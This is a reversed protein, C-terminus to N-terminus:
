VGQLMGPGSIASWPFHSRKLRQTPRNELWILLTSTSCTRYAALYKTPNRLSFETSMLPRFAIPLLTLRYPLIVNSISQPRQLHFHCHFRVGCDISYSRPTRSVAEEGPPPITNIRIPKSPRPRLYNPHSQPPVPSPWHLVAAPRSALLACLQSFIHSQLHLHHCLCSLHSTWLTTLPEPSFFPRSDLALCPWTLCPLYIIIAPPQRKRENRQLHLHGDLKWPRQAHDRAAGPRAHLRGSRGSSRM